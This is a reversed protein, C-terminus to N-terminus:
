RQQTIARFLRPRPSKMFWNLFNTIGGAALIILLILFPYRLRYLTGVNVVALGLAITGMAAISALLWVSLQRRGKWLGVVALCEVAYMFLTELGGLMRGSQGVNGGRELWMDPFPAFLGIEMARPLYRVLDANTGLKVDTDINSKADPYKVAFAQRVIGIKAPVQWWRVVPKPVATKGVAKSEAEKVRPNDANRYIPLLVIAAATLTILLAMGAINSVLVRRLQFQRVVLMLTGLLITAVLLAGLDSRAKWLMGAILAGVTGNLFAERWSSKGKLFHMMVFILALMGLNFLPDKLLQTTHLVFSPWLAVTLSAIFGACLGFIERALKYVFILIGLYYILNLPEASLINFGLLGGLIAFGISYLKVHFSYPASFWVHFQGSWLMEALTTADERYGVGDNAFAVAIGNVDFTGPLLAQRGLAFVATTVVLHLISAAILLRLSNSFFNIGKDKTRLIASRKMGLKKTVKAAHSM